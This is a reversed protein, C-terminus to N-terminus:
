CILLVLPSPGIMYNFVGSSTGTDILSGTNSYNLSLEAIFVIIMVAVMAANFWPRFPPQYWKLPFIQSVKEALKTMSSKREIRQEGQPPSDESTIPIILVDHSSYVFQPTELNAPHMITASIM